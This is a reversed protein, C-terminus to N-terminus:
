ALASSLLNNIYCGFSILVDWKSDRILDGLGTSNTTTNITADWNVRVQNERLTSWTKAVIRPCSPMPNPVGEVRISSTQFSELLSSALEM